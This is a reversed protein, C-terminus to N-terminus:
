APEILERKHQPNRRALRCWRVGACQALQAGSQLGDQCQM